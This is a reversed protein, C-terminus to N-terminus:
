EGEFLKLLDPESYGSVYVIKGNKDLITPVCLLAYKEAYEPQKEVDIIELQSNLNNRNIIEKIVTCQACFETTFLKIM